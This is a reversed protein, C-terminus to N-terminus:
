RAETLKHEYFRRALQIMQRARERNTGPGFNKREELLLWLRDVWALMLEVDDKLMTPRGGINVYIAASHARPVGGPSVVGRAPPGSVRVAFWSSQSVEVEERVQFPSTQPAIDKTAIVKGNQILEVKDFPVRSVVEAELRARFPQGAPVDIVSGMPKGNVSFTLLPGNTVFDRGERLRDIWHSWSTSPGVEVYERSGGPINNIGRWNTFVDTGAGPAIRFGCNLFRYWLEYAGEGFPLIDIADIAGLATGVPMEKAGLNTDFVDRSVPMMPHVYSVLGGQKRAELAAMTNLPFDYPSDSGIVSTYSPPVQKKINLFAMHGLPFSNRYEQGWYLIYRGTSLPSVGGTFFEKDHVFGGESNAVIMNATNLDEAQLWELSQPPRQYYGGNYNAHFHNEGTQWGRELWNTWRRMRLTVEATDGAAVDATAKEIEYEVGKLAELHVVGAPVPFTDDGKSLFFGGSDPGPMLPYFFLDAGSPCYAKGDAAQVYLRAPTPQGLEDVVRVRLRGSPKAFRLSTLQVHRRDSADPRMTFIDMNGLENSVFAIRKGDPSVAPSFEDRDTHTVAEPAGGGRSVRYLDYNGRKNTLDASIIVGSGDPLAAIGQLDAIDEPRYRTLPLQVAIPPGGPRVAWVQPVGGRQATFFLEDRKPNWAADIWFSMQRFGQPMAQLRTAAGDAIKIEFLLTADPARLACVIRSADPSWTPTGAVPFPTRIESEVGSAADVLALTGGVNPLRGRPSQGKLFAIKDGRPSWAPHAHYRDSTTIQRAEGGEANTQWISGFLSFALTKGDPSWAPEVAGWTTTDTAAALTVRRERWLAVAAIAMLLVIAIRM